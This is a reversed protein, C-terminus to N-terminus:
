HLSSVIFGNTVKLHGTLRRRACGTVQTHPAVGTVAAVEVVAPLSYASLVEPDTALQKAMSSQNNPNKIHVM